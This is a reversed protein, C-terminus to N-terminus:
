LILATTVPVIKAVTSQILRARTLSWHGATTFAPVFKELHRASHLLDQDAASSIAELLPSQEGYNNKNKNASRMNTYVTATHLLVWM